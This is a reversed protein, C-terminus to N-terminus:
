MKCKLSSQHQHAPQKDNIPNNRQRDRQGPKDHQRVYRFDRFREIQGLFHTTHKINAANRVRVPPKKQAAAYASHPDAGAVAM